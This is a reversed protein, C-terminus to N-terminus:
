LNIIKKKGHYMKFFNIFYISNDKFFNKKKLSNFNILYYDIKKFLAPLTFDLGSGMSCVYLPLEKKSNILAIELPFKFYIIPINLHKKIFLIKKISTTRKAVYVCNKNKWFNDIKKLIKIEEDLKLIDSEFYKTGIIYVLDKNFNYKKKRLNKLYILKNKYKRHLKLEDAYMTFVDFKKNKLFDFNFFFNVIKFKNNFFSKRQNIPLYIKRSLYKQYIWFIAMGDDVLIFKSEKFFLRFMHYFTNLFDTIIFTKKIKKYKFFLNILLLINKMLTLIYNNNRTIKIIKKLKLIKLTSHLENNTRLNKTFFIYLLYNDINKQYIYEKISILQNPSAAFAIYKM